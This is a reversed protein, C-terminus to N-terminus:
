ILYCAVDGVKEAFAFNLLKSVVDGEAGNVSIGAANVDMGEPCTSSKSSIQRRM